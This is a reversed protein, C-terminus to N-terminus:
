ARSATPESLAADALQQLRTILRNAQAERTFAELKRCNAEAMDAPLPLATRCAGVFGTLDEDAVRATGDFDKLVQWAADAEAGMYIIPKGAALYEYVKSPVASSFGPRLRVFLITARAYQELVQDRPLPGLIALNGLAHAQKAHELAETEVGEGIVEFDWDPMERAADGLIAVGQAKGLSGAYVVAPRHNPVAGSRRAGAMAIMVREEIGNAVHITEVRPVRQQVYQQEAATSCAVLRARSLAWRSWVALANQMVRVVPSRSIRYEWTLDRLDIVLKHRPIAFPARLLFSLVPSTVVVFDNQSVDVRSFVRKAIRWEDLFRFLFNGRRVADCDVWESIAVLDGQDAPLPGDAAFGAAVVRTIAGAQQFSRALGSLRNAGASRQPPFNYTLILIKM